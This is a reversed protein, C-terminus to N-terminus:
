VYQYGKLFGHLLSDVFTGNIMAHQKMKGEFRFGNKELLSIHEHRFAYTETFIRNFELDDFAVKKMFMIFSTFEKEYLVPNIARKTDLLFSVEARKSLWEINTLGGYGICHNSNLYSFLIIKPYVQSFCPIVINEYYAIQEQDTLPKNQRLIDMQENRWKKILFLDEKRIPVIAYEGIKYTNNNLIGYKM